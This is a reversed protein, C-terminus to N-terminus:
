GPSFIKVVNSDWNPPNPEVAIALNCLLAVAFSIKNM